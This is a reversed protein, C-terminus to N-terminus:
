EELKRKSQEKSKEKLNENVESAIKRNWTVLKNEEACKFGEELINSLLKYKPTRGIVAIEGVNSSIASMIVSRLITLAVM